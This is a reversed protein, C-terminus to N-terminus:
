LLYSLIQDQKSESSGGVNLERYYKMRLILSNLNNNTRAHLAHSEEDSLKTSCPSTSLRM